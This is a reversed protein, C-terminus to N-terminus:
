SIGIEKLFAKNNPKRGLFGTLLDGEEMSGGTKKNMIGEKEFRTFMDAAFVNSWMYGYYGADYGDLHGFGAPFISTKPLVLGTYKKLLSKYLANPEPPKSKTHLTLDFLGLILQRLTAYRLMHNKSALLNNLLKSPLPKGTQHHASLLALSKADWAWHELMQSPAEVFDWAVGFGGQGSHHATTLVGHMVHGFEHLFTEVESHSLLSPHKPSPKPFNTVMTVFPVNYENGHLTKTHGDIINFAAAHGYKGDRPYLDLAFYSLIERASNKVVYLEADPHWLTFGSTKEFSVGFLTSYIKFTGDLVRALPFYERVEESDFNFRKKQLEQWYYPVDHPLIRAKKNGTMERKLDELEMLDKKGSKEVRKLLGLNFDFATKGSKAMRLETKYDAHTKYGLLTAHEARVALMEKLVKINKEGGKRLYKENLEKRKTENKAMEMFPHFDPYALTVIYNGKKDRKLGAKYREPLGALEAETALMQDKYSNINHRFANSLKSLKQELEKVRKQKPPALDFGMRKYTLFTDRFLKQDDVGLTAKEKKWAGAEYGKIAEWIKPDREITIMKSQISEIASKATDRIKEDPSVNQLLDIKLVTELIDNNSADISYITNEFNRDKAPVKKIKALREKKIALIEPVQKKIEASTWKTWAFDKPTYPTRKM